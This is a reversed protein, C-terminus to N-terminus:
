VLDAAGEVTVTTTAAGIQLTLNAEVPIASRVDIDQQANQFGPATAFMHYNNFPVNELQYKGQSDTLVARTYHSVPNQIQVNAHPIAAGSPDLVSGRVTGSTAQGFLSVTFLGCLSVLSSPRFGFAINRM